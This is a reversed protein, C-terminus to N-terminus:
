IMEFLAVVDNFGVSGNGSFDFYEVNNQVVTGDHEEFFTVVDNFGFQGDGTVDEYLGDGTLDQAPNGDGTVDLVPDDGNGGEAGPLDDNRKEYLYEQVWEGWENGVEYDRDVMSPNWEFDFVWATWNVSDYEEYFEYFDEGHEERTGVLYPAGDYPQFGFETMFVPVNESTDGFYTGLPRLNDHSYVHGAYALNEGEFEHKDAWYTFQSWRPSGIIIINREAHERILDVWPQATERWYLYNEETEEGRVPVDTTPDNAAPYPTTPENYVEYIVHSEDAYRPAVVEWFLRIEEDLEPDDWDPGEPYHRHYDAIVYMGIEKCKEVAPDIHTELYEVLQAEDFAVPDVAGAGHDGIDQPQMPLRVIRSFWTEEDTMLELQDEIFMTNYPAEGNARAPDITNVGRLVVENGDPDRLLNGDVELWPTPIGRDDEDEATVSGVAATSLGTGAVFAGAASTQLFSRRTARPTEGARRQTPQGDATTQLADTSTDTREFDGGGRSRDNM